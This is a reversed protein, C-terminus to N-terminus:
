REVPASLPDVGLADAWRPRRGREGATRGRRGRWLWGTLPVCAGDARVSVRGEPGMTVSTSRSINRRAKPEGFRVSVFLGRAGATVTTLDLSCPRRRFDGSM